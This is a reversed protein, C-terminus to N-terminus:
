TASEKLHTIARCLEQKAIQHDKARDRLVVEAQDLAEQMIRADSSLGAIYRNKNTQLERLQKILAEQDHKKSLRSQDCVAQWLMVKQQLRIVQIQDDDIQKDLRHVERTQTAVKQELDIWQAHERKKEEKLFPIVWRKIGYIAIAAIVVVDLWRFILTVILENIM